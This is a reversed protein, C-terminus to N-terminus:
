NKLKNHFSLYMSLIKNRVSLYLEDQKLCEFLLRCLKPRVFKINYFRAKLICVFINPFFVNKKM